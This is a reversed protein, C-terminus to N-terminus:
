RVIGVLLLLELRRAVPADAHDGVAVARKRLVHAIAALIAPQRAYRNELLAPVLQQPHRIGAEPGAIIEAADPVEEIQNRLAGAVPRRLVFVALVPRSKRSDDDRTAKQQLMIGFVPVWREPDHELRCTRRSPMDVNMGM